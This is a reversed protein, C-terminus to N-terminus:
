VWGTLQELAEVLEPHMVFEYHGDITEHSAKNETSLTLHWMPENDRERIPPEYGISDAIAHAMKGYHLNAVSFDKSGAAKALQTATITHNEAHYQAQLMKHYASGIFKGRQQNKFDILAEKFQEATAVM